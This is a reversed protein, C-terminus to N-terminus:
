KNKEGLWEGCFVLDARGTLLMQDDSERWEVTMEGGQSCVTVKRETKGTFAAAIAAATACTGSALTEGAGREWIRLEINDRDFIKIFVVNTHEPFISRTEIAQGIKRWDLEDFDNVFVCAVPNGVNVATLHVSAGEIELPYDIVSNRSQAFFMPISESDFKPNGLEAEFWYHGPSEIKSLHYNKIGSKTLLRLDENTWIKQYYLLAVACRTGNGSFAAESGDPNFIL